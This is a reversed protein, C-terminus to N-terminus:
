FNFKIKVTIGGGKDSSPEAPITAKKEYDMLSDKLFLQCSIDSFNATNKSKKKLNQQKELFITESASNMKRLNGM